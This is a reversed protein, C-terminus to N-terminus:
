SLYTLCIDIDYSHAPEDGAIKLNGETDLFYRLLIYTSQGTVKGVFYGSVKTMPKFDNAVKLVTVENSAIYPNRIQGQLTVSNIIKSAKMESGSIITTANMLTPESETTGLFLSKLPRVLSYALAHITGSPTQGSICLKARREQYTNHQIGDKFIKNGDPDFSAFCAWEPEDPFPFNIEIVHPYVHWVEGQVFIAGENVQHYDGMFQVECGWLICAQGNGAGFSQVIDALALRISSDTFRLDNLNLPFGGNINTLLQNM